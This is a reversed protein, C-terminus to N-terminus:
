YMHLYRILILLFVVSILWAMSFHFILCSIKCNVAGVFAYTQSTYGGIWIMINENWVLKCSNQHQNSASKIECFEGWTKSSMNFKRINLNKNRRSIVFLEKATTKINRYLTSTENKEGSLTRRRYEYLVTDFLDYKEAFREVVDHLFQSHLYPALTLM